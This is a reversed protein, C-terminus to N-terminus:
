EKDDAHVGRALLGGTGTDASVEMPPPAMPAGTARRIWPSAGPAGAPALTPQALQPGYSGNPSMGPAVPVRHGNLAAGADGRVPISVSPRQTQVPVPVRPRPRPAVVMRACIGCM